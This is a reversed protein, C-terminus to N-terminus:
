KPHGRRFVAYGAKVKAIRAQLGRSRQGKAAEKAVAKHEFTRWHRYSKGDFKRIVIM